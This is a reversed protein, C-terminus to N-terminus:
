LRHLAAFVRDTYDELRRTCHKLRGEADAAEAATFVDRAKV